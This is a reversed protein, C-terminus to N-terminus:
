QKLNESDFDGELFKAGLKRSKINLISQKQTQANTMTTSNAQWWNKNKFYGSFIGTKLLQGKRDYYEIKNAQLTKKSM